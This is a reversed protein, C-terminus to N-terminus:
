HKITFVEAKVVRGTEDVEVHGGAQDGIRDQDLPVVGARLKHLIGFATEYRTLGLQRQFQVASMGPTHRHPVAGRHCRLSSLFLQRGLSGTGPLYRLGRRQSVVAPVGPSNQPFPPGRSQSHGYQGLILM